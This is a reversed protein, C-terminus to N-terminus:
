ASMRLQGKTRNGGHKEATVQTWFRQMWFSSSISLLGGLRSRVLLTAVRTCYENGRIEVFRRYYGEERLGAREVATSNEASDSEIAMGKSSALAVV